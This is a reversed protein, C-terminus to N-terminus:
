ILIFGTKEANLSRSGNLAVGGGLRGRKAREARYVDPAAGEGLWQLSKIM